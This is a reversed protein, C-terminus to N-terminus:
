LPIRIWFVSGTNTSKEDKYRKAEEGSYVGTMGGHATAILKCIALGLGAGEKKAASSPVQEFADFIKEEYGEPIGPGQDFVRVEAGQEDWEVDIWIKGNVPSFKIANSLLNLITQRLKSQDASINWTGPAQIIEINKKRAGAELLQISEKILEDLQFESRALQIKGEQLKQFDLLDNVLVTLMDIANAADATSSRIESSIEGKAGASILTMSAHISMLPSRLDHSVMNVFDQKLREINKQETVDLVVCFLSEYEASWFTSWRTEVIQGDSRKMRLDFEVTKGESKARKLNKDATLVDHTYVFELLPRGVLEDPEMLLITQSYPNVFTFTGERDISCVLEAVSNLLDQEHELAKYVNTAISHILRDLVGLEDNRKLSPMLQKRQSLLRSNATIRVLPSRVSNSFFLALLIAALTEAVFWFPISLQIRAILEPSKRNKTREKEVAAIEQLVAVLAQSKHSVSQAMQHIRVREPVPKSSEEVWVKFSEMADELILRLRKFTERNYEDNATLAFIGNWKDRLEQVTKVAKIRRSEFTSEALENSLQKMYLLKYTEQATTFAKVIVDRSHAERKLEVQVQGLVFMLYVVFGLQCLLPLFVLLISRVRLSSFRM